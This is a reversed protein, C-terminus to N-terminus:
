STCGHFRLSVNAVAKSVASSIADSETYFAQSNANAVSDVKGGTSVALANAISSTDGTQAANQLQIDCLMTHAAGQQAPPCGKCLAPLVQRSLLRRATTSPHIYARSNKSTLPSLTRYNESGQQIHQRQWVCQSRASRIRTVPSSAKSPLLWSM